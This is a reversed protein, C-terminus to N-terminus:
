APIIEPTTTAVPTDNMTAAISSPKPRPLSSESAASSLARWSAQGHRCGDVGRVDLLEDDCAVRSHAAAHHQRARELPLELLGVDRDLVRRDALDRGVGVDHHAVLGQGLAGSGAGRALRDHGELHEETVRGDVGQDLRQLVAAVDTASRSTASATRSSADAVEASSAM